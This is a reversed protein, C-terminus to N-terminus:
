TINLMTIMLSTYVVSGHPCRLTGFNLGTCLLVMWGPISALSINGPVVLTCTLGGNM